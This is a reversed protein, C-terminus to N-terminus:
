KEESKPKAQNPQKPQDATSTTPEPQKTTGISKTSIKLNKITKKTIPVKKNTPSSASNFPQMIKNFLSTGKKAKTKSVEFKDQFEKANIINPKNDAEEKAQEIELM